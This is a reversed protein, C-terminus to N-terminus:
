IWVLILWGSGFCAARALRSLWDHDFIGSLKLCLSFSWVVQPYEQYSHLVEGFSAQWLLRHFLVPPWAWHRLPNHIMARWHRLDNCLRQEPRTWGVNNVSRRLIVAINSLTVSFLLRYFLVLLFVLFFLIHFVDVNTFRKNKLIWSCLSIITKRHQPEM